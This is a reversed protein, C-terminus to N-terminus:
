FQNVVGFHVKGTSFTDGDGLAYSVGLLGISTDVRFGIGYGVKFAQTSTIRREEDAPRFYYGTDIFGFLYSRRSMLFRYELNTWVISSGLFQNERYGRMTNTGGFRYLDGDDLHDSRLDRAHIGTGIVQRPFPQTYFELDVGLSKVTFSQNLRGLSPSGRGSFVKRGIRYDSRYHIGSTPSYIDDRTDFRIEGGITTTRSESVLPAALSSSPIVRNQGFLLAVTFGETIMLAGKLDIRRRIYSSDQERQLLAFDLNVPLNLVWPELYRLEVEQTAQDERQWRIALRRGTGFLNRLSVSVFGTFYGPQNTVGKPVYGVVGDFSNTNGEQVKIRLGGGKTGFYLEPESVSSFLNLRELKEKITKVKESNYVEGPKFRLERLVVHDKTDNNGEIKVEEITTLRGEVIKLSVQLKQDGQEEYSKLSDVEVKAFPYGIEEYRELLIEIDSELRAQSLPKGEMTEFLSLVAETPMARNGTIWVSGVDTREGERIHLVVDVETSDHDTVWTVSEIEASYFGEERYRGLLEVISSRLLEHSFPRGPKLSFWRLVDLSSFHSNGTVEIGRLTSKGRASCLTVLGLTLLLACYFLWCLKEHQCDYLKRPQILLRRHSSIGSM